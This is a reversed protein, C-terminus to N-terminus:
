SPPPEPEPERIRWSLTRRPAPQLEPKKRRILSSCLSHCCHKREGRCLKSEKMGGEYKPGGNSQAQRPLQQHCSGCTRAKVCACSASATEEVYVEKRKSKIKWNCVTQQQQKFPDGNAAAAAAAAATNTTSASSSCTSLKKQRQKACSNSRSHNSGFFISSAKRSATGVGSRKAGSFRM